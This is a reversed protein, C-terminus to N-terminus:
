GWACTGSGSEFGQSKVGAEEREELLSWLHVSSGPFAPLMPMKALGEKSEESSHILLTLHPSLLQGRQFGAVGTWMQKM